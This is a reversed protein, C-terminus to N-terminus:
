RAATPRSGSAASKQAFAIGLEMCAGEDPVRGDLNILSLDCGAITEVDPAFIRELAEEETMGRALLDALLLGDRRPLFTAYKRENFFASVQENFAREAQTFLPGAIYVRPKKDAAPKM